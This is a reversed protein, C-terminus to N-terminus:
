DPLSDEDTEDVSGNKDRLHAAVARAARKPGFPEERPKRHTPTRLGGQDWAERRAQLELATPDTVPAAGKVAGLMKLAEPLKAIQQAATAGQGALRIATDVAALRLLQEPSNAKLASVGGSGVKAPDGHESFMRDAYATNSEDQRQREGAQIHQRLERLEKRQAKMGKLIQPAIEEEGEIGLPSDDDFEPAPPEPRRADETTANRSRLAQKNLLKVLRTLETPSSADIEEQPVGLDLALEILNADHTPKVFRGAEDRARSDAPPPPVEASQENVQSPSDLIPDFGPDIPEDLPDAQSNNEASDQDPM